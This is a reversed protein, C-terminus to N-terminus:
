VHFSIMSSSLSNMAVLHELDLQLNEMSFGQMYPVYSFTPQDHMIRVGHNKMGEAEIIFQYYSNYKKIHGRNVVQSSGPCKSVPKEVHSLKRLFSM